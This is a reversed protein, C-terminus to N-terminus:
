RRVKDGFSEGGLQRRRAGTVGPRALLRRGAALLDLAWLEARAIGGYVCVAM